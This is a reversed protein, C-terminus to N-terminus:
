VAHHILLRKLDLLGSYLASFYGNMRDMWYKLNPVDFLRCRQLMSCCAPNWLAGFISVTCPSSGQPVPSSGRRLQRTPAMERDRQVPLSVRGWDGSKLWCVNKRTHTAHYSQLAGHFGLSSVEHCPWPVLEMAAAPHWAAPMDGGGRAPKACRPPSSATGQSRQAQQHQRKNFFIHDKLVIETWFQRIEINSHSLTM